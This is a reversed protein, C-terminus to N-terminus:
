VEVGELDQRVCELILEYDREPDEGDLYVEDKYFRRIKKYLKPNKVDLFIEKNAAARLTRLDKKFKSTLTM